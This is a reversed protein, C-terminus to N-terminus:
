SQESLSPDDIPLYGDVDPYDDASEGVVYYVSGWAVVGDIDHGQSNLVAEIEKATM